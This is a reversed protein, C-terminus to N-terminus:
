LTVFFVEDDTLHYEVLNDGEGIRDVVLFDSAEYLPTLVGHWQNRKLNIGQKATALFAAPHAPVGNDDDAVIVLWPQRGLPFFAQSGLPHRELLEVRHPLDYHTGAFISIGVAGGDGVVDAIALAHHRRCKGQNILFNEAGSTEIVEGYPEFAAATLPEATLSRPM